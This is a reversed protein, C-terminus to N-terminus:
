GSFFYKIQFNDPLSWQTFLTRIWLEEPGCKGLIGVSYSAIRLIEGYETRICSFVSWFLESHPCKWATSLKLSSLALLHPLTYLKVMSGSVNLRVTTSLSLLKKCYFRLSQHYFKSILKPFVFERIAPIANPFM